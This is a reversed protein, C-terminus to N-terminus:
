TNPNWATFRRVGHFGCQRRRDGGGNRARIGAAACSEPPGSFGKGREADISRRHDGGQRRLVGFADGGNVLHRGGEDGGLHVRHKESRATSATLIPM